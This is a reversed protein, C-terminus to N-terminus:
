EWALYGFYFISSLWQYDSGVLNLDTQLGMISAYSLTTKDLFNLGYIICMLPMIHLDIKRLLRRNTEADIVIAEGEVRDTIFKLAQDGDKELRAIDANSILSDSRTAPGAEKDELGPSYQVAM